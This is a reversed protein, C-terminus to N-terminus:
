FTSFKGSFSTGHVPNVTIKEDDDDNKKKQLRVPRLSVACYEAFASGLKVDCPVSPPDDRAEAAVTLPGEWFIMCDHGRNLPETNIPIGQITNGINQPLDERWFEIKSSEPQPLHPHM